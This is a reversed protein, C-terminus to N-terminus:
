STQMGKKVESVAEQAVVLRDLLLLFFRSDGLLPLLFRPLPIVGVVIKQVFIVNSLRAVLISIRIEEIVEELQVVIGHLEAAHTTYPYV